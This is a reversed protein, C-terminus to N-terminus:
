ELLRIRLHPRGNIVIAAARAMESSLSWDGLSPVARGARCEELLLAKLAHLPTDLHAQIEAILVNSFGAGCVAKRYSERLRKRDLPRSEDSSHPSKERHYGPSETIDLDPIIDKLVPLVAQVATTQKFPALKGQLALRAIAETLNQSMNKLEQNILMLAHALYVCYGAANWTSIVTIV